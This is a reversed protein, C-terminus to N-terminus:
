QWFIEKAAYVTEIEGPIEGPPKRPDIRQGTTYARIQCQQYANFTCISAVKNERAGEVVGVTIDVSPQGKPSVRFIM